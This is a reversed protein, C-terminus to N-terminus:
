RQCKPCYFSSRGSQVIRQISAHCTKTSCPKGQQDYVLFNHQFYGLKGDSDAFDRLSSGGAAIARALVDRIAPVLRALRKAGVNAALRRPSIGAMFLAECVYINGLGSVVRQDLLVNKIPSKRTACAALLGELHFENSLPEPGLDSLFPTNDPAGEVLDMFGFRRPDAYSLITGDEFGLRVHVHKLAVPQAVEHAYLGPELKDQNPTELMYRGTMGLHSLWYFTEGSKAMEALLYKARRGFHTITAGTLREAFGAPFPFRLDPRALHVSTIKRGEIHPSLGRRVTEVEPLEPM